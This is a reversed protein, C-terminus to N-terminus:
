RGWASVGNRSASCLFFFWRAKTIQITIKEIHAILTGNLKKANDTLGTTVTLAELQDLKVGLVTSVAIVLGRLIRIKKEFITL